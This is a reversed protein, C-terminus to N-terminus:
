QHEGEHTPKAAQRHTAVATLFARAQIEAYERAFEPSDAVVLVQVAMAQALAIGGVPTALSSGLLNIITQTLADAKHMDAEDLREVNRIFAKCEDTVYAEPTESM